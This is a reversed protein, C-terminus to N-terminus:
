SLGIKLLMEGRDRDGTPLSRRRFSVGRCWEHTEASRQGRTCPAAPAVASGSCGTDSPDQNLEQSAPFGAFLFGKDKGLAVVVPPLSEGMTGRRESM